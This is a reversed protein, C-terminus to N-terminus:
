RGNAFAIDELIWGTFGCRVASVRAPVNVVGVDGGPNILIHTDLRDNDNLPIVLGANVM